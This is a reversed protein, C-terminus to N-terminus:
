EGNGTGNAPAQTIVISTLDLTDDADTDNVALDISATGGVVLTAADNGAVPADNVPTVTVNVTAAASALGNNDKITYAFSDSTTESGDHTYSVTGDANVTVTGSAPQQTIVISTLDITGDSDTDNVALDITISAGENVTAADAVAVPADNATTITLTVTAANSVLGSADKITYSFSDTTTASGDHAYSVTGDANVTVTGNAPQQTVVISTLDITSDSDTDNAALDITVSEGENVTASDNTAVPADNIPTVTVSVM